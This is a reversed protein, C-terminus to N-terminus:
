AASGREAVLAAHIRFLQEGLIRWDYRAGVLERGHRRLSVSLGASAELKEMAACMEAATDALLINRGDEVDLGEAGLRTSVVPVGAAMAELIKLRTGSGVRLPVVVAAATAYFPRVDEVTGTVVVDSAALRRIEESPNRGVITLQPHALRRRLEPWVERVFWVVGDINAHYDMMGVFLLGRRGDAPQRLRNCAAAIETDSFHAVDVGNPVVHIKAPHLAALKGRERESAVIHADAAALLKREAAEILRATRWAVLRRAQSRVTEAYRRMLESEINHWDALVLPRSRAARIAPLYQMLHVSELQVVDFAGEELIKELAANVRPSFYNLITIPVPGALGRLIKALSYSPDKELVIARVLGADEPPPKSAPDGPQRLGLLTVRCRGALERAFYYNRLRAGSTAPWCEHPAFYLVKM